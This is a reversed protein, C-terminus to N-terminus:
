NVWRNTTYRLCTVIDDTATGSNTGSTLEPQESAPLTSDADASLTTWTRATENDTCTLTGIANNAGDVVNMTEAAGCTGKCACSGAHLQVGVYTNELSVPYNAVGTLGIDANTECHPAWGNIQAPNTVTLLHNSSLEGNVTITSPSIASITSETGTYGGPEDIRVSNDFLDLVGANSSGANYGGINLNTDVNEIWVPSNRVLFKLVKATGSYNVGAVAPITCSPTGVQDLAVNVHIPTNEVIVTGHAATGSNNANVGAIAFATCTDTGSLIERDALVDISSDLLNMRDLPNSTNANGLHSIELGNARQNTGASLAPWDVVKYEITDQYRPIAAITYTCGSTSSVAPSLTATDTSTSYTTIATAQGAAACGGGSFAIRRFAFGDDLGIDDAPDLQVTTTTGAIAAHSLSGFFASKTYDRSFHPRSILACERIEVDASPRKVVAQRGGVIRGIGYCSVRLQPLDTVSGGGNDGSIILGANNGAILGRNVIEVGDWRTPSTLPEGGVALAGEPASFSDDWIEGNNVIRIGTATRASGNNGIRITGGNITTASTAVPRIVADNVLTLNSIGNISVCENYDSGDVKPEVYIFKPNSTQLKAIEIASDVDCTEGNTVSCSANCIKTANCGASCVTTTSGLSPGGGGGISGGAGAVDLSCYATIMAQSTVVSPAATVDVHFYGPRASVTQASTDVTFTAVPTCSGASADKTDCSLIRAAAATDSAVIDDAYGFSVAGCRTADLTKTSDDLTSWFYRSEQGPQITQVTWNGATAPAAVLAVLLGFLTQWRM